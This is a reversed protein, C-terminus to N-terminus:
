ARHRRPRPERRHRRRAPRLRRRHRAAVDRPSTTPGRSAPWRASSRRTSSRSGGHKADLEAPAAGHHVGIMETSRRLRREVLLEALEAANLERTHFPNLPTDRGPSFTIATRRASRAARRRPAARPRVERLFQPQDWLHEIVQFNVVRGGVRRRAAARRPQRAADDRAPLPRARARRRVDDYDLATVAAGVDAIMDAGYGEGSGAELVDRGACRDLSARPLRDRPPPVLLEGRRHRPRDARRDAAASRVNTDLTAKM